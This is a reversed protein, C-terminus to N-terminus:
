RRRSRRSGPAQPRSRRSVRRGRAVARGIRRAALDRAAEAGVERRATEQRADTVDVATTAAAFAEAKVPVRLSIPNSYEPDCSARCDFGNIFFTPCSRSRTTRRSPPCPRGRWRRCGATLTDGTGLQRAARRGHSGSRGHRPAPSSSSRTGTLLSSWLCPPRRQRRRARPPWSPRSRRCAPQITARLRAM